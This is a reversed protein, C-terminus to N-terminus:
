SVYGGTFRTAPGHAWLDIALGLDIAVLRGERPPGWLLFNDPRVDAHLVGLALLGRVCAMMERTFHLAM